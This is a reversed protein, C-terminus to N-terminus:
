IFSYLPLRPLSSTFALTNPLAMEVVGGGREEGILLLSMREKAGQPTMTTLLAIRQISDSVHKSGAHTFYLFGPIMAVLLGSPWGLLLTM